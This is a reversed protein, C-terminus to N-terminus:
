KKLLGLYTELVIEKLKEKDEIESVFYMAKAGDYPLEEKMEYNVQSIM